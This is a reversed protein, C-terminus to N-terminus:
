ERKISIIKGTIIIIQIIKKLRKVLNWLSKRHIHKTGIELSHVLSLQVSEM